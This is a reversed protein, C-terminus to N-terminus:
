RELKIVEKVKDNPKRKVIFHLGCSQDTERTTRSSADYVLHTRISVFQCPHGEV